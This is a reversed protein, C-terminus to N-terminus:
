PTEFITTGALLVNNQRAEFQRIKGSNNAALYTIETLSHVPDVGFRRQLNPILIENWFPSFDQVELIVVGNKKAKKIARSRREQYKIRPNMQQNVAFSIDVRYMKAEALFMAYDIEDQSVSSYFSPSQKFLIKEIGAKNSFSVLEVLYRLSKKVAVDKATVFGGYTLGGHSVLKKDNINAPFLGVLHGDDFVMLSHDEFRDGHYEMFSRSFLFSNTRSTELFDNWLEADTKRYRRVTIM